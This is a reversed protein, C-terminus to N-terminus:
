LTVLLIFSDASSAARSATLSRHGVRRAVDALALQVSVERDEARRGPSPQDALTRQRRSVDPRRDDDGGLVDFAEEGAGSLGVGRLPGVGARRRVSASM